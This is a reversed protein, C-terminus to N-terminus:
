VEDRTTHVLASYLPIDRSDLFPKKIMYDAVMPFMPEETTYM